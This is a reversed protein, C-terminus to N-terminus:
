GLEFSTIGYIKDIPLDVPSGKYMRATEFSQVLNYREALALGSANTEPVDLIIKGGDVKSCLAQFIVNAIDSSEAFLPGTKYGDAYPRILGYGKISGGEEYVFGIHGEERLWCNLFSERQDFFFNRDFEVIQGVSLDRVDVLNSNVPLSAEVSGEFRINRHALAFGSKMYNDQQDVVGDLGVTRGELSNM